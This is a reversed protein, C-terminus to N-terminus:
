KRRRRCVMDRYAASQGRLMGVCRKLVEVVTDIEEKTTEESLTLRLAGRGIEDPLGIARLVHSTGKSSASCASGSSACIGNMDLLLVLAAGDVFQFSFNANNPLRQGRAGNLRSYPIELLIREILYERLGQEKEIREQMRCFAMEAAKGMGVIGAVNETGSRQGREQGGGQIMPPIRCGERVYLFGVGKPGHFKHASASLMSIHCDDVSIPIHGFAQVADTHFLIGHKKSIEGIEKLPQITGIENNAAMVSILMTDPRIAKELADLKVMGGEDVPLYTVEFGQKELWQCTHLIAHHEIQTTIMHCKGAAKGMEMAAKLAWNDAETGGSTFFIASKKAGIGDAITQRVNDMEKRCTDSFGYISSPNGYQGQLFPMMAEMAEKSVKTTAANDLYIM